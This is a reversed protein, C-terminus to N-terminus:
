EVLNARIQEITRQNLGVRDSLYGLISGYKQRIYAFTDRLTEPQAIHLPYLTHTNLGWPTLPRIDPEIARAFHDYYANSLSYDAVITTDPVGLLALLLAIIVGTRDKGAACHILCPLNDPNALQRLTTAIVATNGEIVLKIYGKLMLRNLASPKFLAAAIAQLSFLRSPNRMPFSSNKRNPDSLFRDPRQRTVRLSRLDCVLKLGLRDLYEQDNHSLRHLNGARYVHGWKIFRGSQTEYGGIDRFNAAQELPLAREATTITRGDAFVLKFYYRQSPDLDTLLVENGTTVTALLQERASTQLSTSAYICVLQGPQQWQILLDDNTQRTVTAPVDPHIILDHAPYPAASRM